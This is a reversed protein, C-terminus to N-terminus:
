LKKTQMEPFDRQMKRGSEQFCECFARLVPM